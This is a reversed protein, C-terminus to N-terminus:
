KLLSSLLLIKIEVLKCYIQQTEIVGTTNMLFSQSKFKILRIHIEIQQM